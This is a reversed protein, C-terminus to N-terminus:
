GPAPVAEAEPKLVMASLELSYHLLHNISFGQGTTVLLARSRMPQGVPDQASIIMVPIDRLREDRNKFELLEWGDVKPMSIDLLLLDPCHQRLAALAEEGNLATVVEVKPEYSLLMRSLLQQVEPDDDVVLVRKVPRALAQIAEILRARRVPKTLYNTAGGKLINKIQPPFTCAIIPTDQIAARAEEALPGLQQASAANLILAHAPHRQLEQSAQALAETEIFEIDDAHDALLPYLDGSQDCIVIRQKFPLQPIQPPSRREMWLWRDNVWRNARAPPTEMPSVPLKFSFTSGPGGKGEGGSPPISPPSEIWIQGNHLEVFQKSISLGLGSGSNDRRLQAAGQYFPEFIIRADEESIGPGTDSVSVVIYRGEEGAQITIGGRDTFRAANSVLNLLVQRIRVRDCYIQPLNEPLTVQLNLKKKELLPRVVMVASEIDERLDVWERHLTLRGMETQSLDLVDNVMSSLHECNRHVIKLDEQLAPPLASGYVEPTEILLDVLGIIMNLPTRFEHSVKAVFITKTKQAEEAILRMAAVRENLLTLERNAHALDDLAQELEAKRDRAEELLTQAQQFHDWSWRTLRYMPRYIAVTLGLGIWIAALSMIKSALDLEVGGYQFTMMVVVTEVIATMLAATLSISTAALIVPLILLSLFGPINLWSFGAVVTVMLIIITFWRGPLARWDELFWAAAAAAYLLTAFLLIQARSAVETERDGLFVFIVGLGVLGAMMWKAALHLEVEIGERSNIM